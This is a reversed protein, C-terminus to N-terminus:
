VISGSRFANTTSIATASSRAFGAGPSKVNAHHILPISRSCGRNHSLVVTYAYLIDDQRPRKPNSFTIAKMRRANEAKEAALKELM